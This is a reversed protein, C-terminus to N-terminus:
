TAIIASPTDLPHFSFTSVHSVHSVYIGGIVRFKAAKKTCFPTRLGPVM